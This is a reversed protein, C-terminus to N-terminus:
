QVLAPRLPEPPALSGDYHIDSNGDVTLTKGVLWGYFGGKNTGHYKLDATPAYIHAYLASGGGLDVSTNGIVFIAIKEPMPPNSGGLVGGSLDVSGTVYIQVYGAGSTTLTENGALKMSPFLYRKPSQKPGGSLTYTKGSLYTKNNTFTTQTVGGPITAAPYNLPEDLPSQWGHIGNHPDDIYAGDLGYTHADGWINGSTGNISITGNSYVSGTTKDVNSGGYPGASADYADVMITGTTNISNIGVIGFGQRSGRIYATADAVIDISTKGLLRAFILGLETGRSKVRKASVACANCNIASITRGSIPDSQGVAAFQHGLQAHARWVGFTIDQSPNLFVPGGGRTGQQAFNAAACDTAQDEAGDNEFVKGSPLATAGALASADAATM